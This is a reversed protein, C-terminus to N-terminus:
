MNETLNLEPSQNPDNDQQFIQSHVIKLGKATSTFDLQLIQLYDKEKMVGDIKHLADIGNADFCVIISGCAHKLPPM